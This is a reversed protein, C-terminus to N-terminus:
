PHYLSNNDPVEHYKGASDEWYVTECDVCRWFNRPRGVGLVAKQLEECDCPEGFIRYKLSEILKRPSGFMPKDSGHTNRRQRKTRQLRYMGYM